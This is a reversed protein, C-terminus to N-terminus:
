ASSVRGLRHSGNGDGHLPVLLQGPADHPATENYFYQVTGSPLSGTISHDIQWLCNDPGIVQESGFPVSGTVVLSSACNGVDCDSDIEGNCNDDM